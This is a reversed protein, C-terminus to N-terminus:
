FLSLSQDKVPKPPDEDDDDAFKLILEKTEKSKQNLRYTGYGVKEIMDNRRKSHYALYSQVARKIDEYSATEFFSNHVNFVHSAIKKVSLGTEGAEKLVIFIDKEYSM